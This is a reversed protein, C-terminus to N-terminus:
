RVRVAHPQSLFQAHMMGEIDLLGIGDLVNSVQRSSVTGINDQFARTYWRCSVHGQLHHPLSTLIGLNAQEAMGNLDVKFLDGVLFELYTARDGLTARGPFTSEIQHLPPDNWGITQDGM